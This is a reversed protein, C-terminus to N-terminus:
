KIGPMSPKKVPANIKPAAYGVMKGGMLAMMLRPLVM